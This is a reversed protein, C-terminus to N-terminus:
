SQKGTNPMSSAIRTQSLMSGRSNSSRKNILNGERTLSSRHHTMDRTDGSRFRNETDRNISFMASKAKLIDRQKNHSSRLGSSQQHPLTNLIEVEQHQGTGNFSSFANPQYRNNSRKMQRSYMPNSGSTKLQMDHGKRHSNVHSNVLSQNLSKKEEIGSDNLHKEPISSSRGEM